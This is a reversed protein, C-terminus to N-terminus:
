VDAHCTHETQHTRPMHTGDRVAAAVPFTIPAHTMQSHTHQGGSSQRLHRLSLLRHVPAEISWLRLLAQPAQPTQPSSDEPPRRLLTFKRACAPACAGGRGSHCPYRQKPMPVATTDTGSHCPYRQKPMPVATTDTGSHCPYRQLTIGCELAPTQQSRLLVPRM